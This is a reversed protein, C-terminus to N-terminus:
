AHPRPPRQALDLARRQVSEAVSHLFDADGSMAVLDALPLRDETM